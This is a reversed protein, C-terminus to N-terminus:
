VIATALEIKLHGTIRNAIERDRVSSTFRAITEHTELGDTISEFEAAVELSRRWAASARTTRGRLWEVVGLVRYAPALADAHLRTQGRLADCARVARM